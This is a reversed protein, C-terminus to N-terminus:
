KMNLVELYAKILKKSELQWNLKEKILAMSKISIEYQLNKNSYLALLKEAIEKPDIPFKILPVGIKKLYPKSSILSTFIFPTGVLMYEFIKNSIMINNNIINQYLSIAIDSNYVLKLLKSHSVAGTLVFYNEIKLERLLKKVNELYIGDGVIWFEFNFNKKLLINASLIFEDYGRYPLIEGSYIIKIKKDEKLSLPHPNLTEWNFYKKILNLDPVNMLCYYPKKIRKELIKLQLPSAGILISIFKSLITELKLFIIYYFNNLKDKAAEPFLEHSDYIVKVKPFILKYFIAPPFGTLDHSHIINLPEKKKLLHIFTYIWFLLLNKISQRENKKIDLIEKNKLHIFTKIHNTNNKSKNKLNIIEIKFGKQILTNVERQVRIDSNFYGYLIMVINM